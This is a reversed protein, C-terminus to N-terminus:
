SSNNGYGSKLQVATEATSLFKLIKKRFEFCNVCFYTKSGYKYFFIFYYEKIICTKLMAPTNVNTKWLIVGVGLMPM